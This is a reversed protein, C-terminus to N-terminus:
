EVLLPARTMNSLPAIKRSWDCNKAVCLSWHFQKMKFLYIVDFPKKEKEKKTIKTIKKSRKLFLFIFIVIEHRCGLSVSLFFLFFVESSYM